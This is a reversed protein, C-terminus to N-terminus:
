ARVLQDRVAMVAQYGIAFIEAAHTPDLISHSMLDEPIIMVDCQGFKPTATQRVSIALVQELLAFFSSLDERRRPTAPNVSVGIVVDCHERLAEVPFNNTLGGDVFLRGDLDVPAFLMPLASSCKIADLVSGSSVTEGLGTELDTRTVFLRKSLKAFDDEPFYQALPAIIKAPNLLGSWRFALNHRTFLRTQALADRIGDAPLGAAYLAAVVAGASTGAVHTPEIGLEELGKIVGAHAIGRFGGGSLVLGIKMTSKM